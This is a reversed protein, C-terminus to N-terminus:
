GSLASTQDLVAKTRAPDSIGRSELAKFVRERLDEPLKSVARNHLGLSLSQPDDLRSVQASLVDQSYTPWMGVSNNEIPQFWPVYGEPSGMCFANLLMFESPRRRSAFLAQVSGYRANIEDLLALVLSRRVPFPTAFNTTELDATDPKNVGLAELSESLWNRHFDSQVPIFPIQAAGDQSFFESQEFSRLFVNKTDLIVINEADAVRAAGLKLVQQARYGNNGRWGGKRAFPIRFRNEILVRDRWPRESCHGTGLLVDDGSLVKVKPLLPGYSPLIPDIKQRLSAEDIDNMIVHISAVNRPDVFRAFSLAQLELLPYDKSYVVTAFSLM